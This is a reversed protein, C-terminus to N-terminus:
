RETHAEIPVLMLANVVCELLLRTQSILDPSTGNSIKDIKIPLTRHVFKHM